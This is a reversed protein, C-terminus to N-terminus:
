RGRRTRAKTKTSGKKREERQYAKWCAPKCFEAHGRRLRPSPQFPEGCKKCLLPEPGAALRHWAFGLPSTVEVHFRLKKKHEDWEARQHTWAGARAAVLLRLWERAAERANPAEIPSVSDLAGDRVELRVGHSPVNEVVLVPVEDEDADPNILEALDAPDSDTLSLEEPLEVRKPPKGREPLKWCLRWLGESEEVLFRDLRRQGAALAAQLELALHYELVALRVRVLLEVIEIQRGYPIRVEEAAARGLATLGFLGFHGAYHALAADDTLDLHSPGLAKVAKDADDPDFPTSGSSWALVRYGRAQDRRHLPL